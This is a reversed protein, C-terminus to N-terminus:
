SGPSDTPEGALVQLIRERVSPLFLTLASWVVDNDVNFYGHVIANRMGIIDGMRPVSTRLTEDQGDAIQLAESFIQFQREIGSRLLRDSEYDARTKNESWAM